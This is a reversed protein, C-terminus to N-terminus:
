PWGMEDSTEAVENWQGEGGYEEESGLYEEEM